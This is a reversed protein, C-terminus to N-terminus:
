FPSGALAVKGGTWFWSHSMVRFLLYRARSLPSLLRPPPRIEPVQELYNAQPLEDYLFPLAPRVKNTDVMLLLMVQEMLRFTTEHLPNAFLWPSQNFGYRNNVASFGNPISSTVTNAIAFPSYDDIPQSTQEKTEAFLPEKVTVPINDMMTSIFSSTDASGYHYPSIYLSGAYKDIFPRIFLRNQGQWKLPYIHFKLPVGAPKNCSLWRISEFISLRNEALTPDCLEKADNVSVIFFSSAPKSSDYTAAVASPIWLIHALPDLADNHFYVRTPVQTTYEVEPFAILNRLSYILGALRWFGIPMFGKVPTMDLNSLISRIAFDIYTSSTSYDFIADVLRASLNSLIYSRHLYSYRSAYRFTERATLLIVFFSAMNTADHALLSAADSSTIGSKIEQNIHPPIWDVQSNALDTFFFLAIFVVIRVQQLNERLLNM